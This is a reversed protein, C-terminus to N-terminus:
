QLNYSKHNSLIAFHLIELHYPTFRILGFRQSYPSNHFFILPVEQNGKTSRMEEIFGIELLIEKITFLVKFIVRIM